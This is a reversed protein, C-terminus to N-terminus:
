TQDGEPQPQRPGFWEAEGPPPYDDLDQKLRLKVKAGPDKEKVTRVFVARELPSRFEHTIRGGHSYRVIALFKM